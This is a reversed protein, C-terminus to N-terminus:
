WRIVCVMVRPAASCLTAKVVLSTRPGKAAAFALGRGALLGDGMVSTPCDQSSGVRV